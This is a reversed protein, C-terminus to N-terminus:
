GCFQQVHEERVRFLKLRTHEGEKIELRGEIEGSPARHLYVMGSASTCPKGEELCFVIQGSGHQMKHDLAFSRPTEGIDSSRIYVRAGTGDALKLSVAAGDWPACSNSLTGGVAQSQRTSPVGFEAEVFAINEQLRLAYGDELLLSGSPDGTGMYLWREGASFSLHCSTQGMEFEITQQEPEVGKIAQQVRLTVLGNEVTEIHGIAIVPAAAIKEAMPRPKFKCAQAQAPMAAVFVAVAMLVARRCLVSLAASLIRSM